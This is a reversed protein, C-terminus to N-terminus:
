CHVPALAQQDSNSLPIYTGDPKVLVLLLQGNSTTLTSPVQRLCWSELPQTVLSDLVVTVTLVLLGM